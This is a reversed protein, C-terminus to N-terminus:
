CVDADQYHLENSYNLENVGQLFERTIQEPTPESGKVTTASFFSNCIMIYEDVIDQESAIESVEWSYIFDMITEYKLIYEVTQKPDIPFTVESYLNNLLKDRVQSILELKNSVQM